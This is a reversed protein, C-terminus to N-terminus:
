VSPKAACIKGDSAIVIQFPNISNLRFQTASHNSAQACISMEKGQHHCVSTNKCSDRFFEVFVYIKSLPPLHMFRFFWKPKVMTKMPLNKRCFHRCNEVVIIGGRSTKAVKDPIICIGITQTADGLTALALLPAM